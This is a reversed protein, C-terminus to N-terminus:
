INLSCKEFQLHAKVLLSLPQKHNYTCLTGFCHKVTQIVDCRFCELMGWIRNFNHFYKLLICSFFYQLSCVHVNCTCTNFESKYKKSKSMIVGESLSTNSYCNWRLKFVDRYCIIFLIITNFWHQQLIHMITKTPKEQLLIKTQKRNPTSWSLLWTFSLFFAYKYWQLM